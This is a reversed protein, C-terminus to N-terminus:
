RMQKNALISHLQLLVVLVGTDWDSYATVTSDTFKRPLYPSKHARCQWRSASPRPCNTSLSKKRVFAVYALSKPHRIATEDTNGNIPTHADPGGLSRPWQGAPAMSDDIFQIIAYPGLSCCASFVNPTVTGGHQANEGDEATGTSRKWFIACM